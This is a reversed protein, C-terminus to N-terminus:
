RRRLGDGLPTSRLVKSLGERRERRPGGVRDWGAKARPRYPVSPHRRSLLWVGICLGLVMWHEEGPGERKTDWEQLRQLPSQGNM